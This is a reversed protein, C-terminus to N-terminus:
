TAPEEDHGGGTRGCLYGGSATLWLVVPYAIWREIGGIGLPALPSADGLFSSGLVVLTAIGLGASLYRFPAQTVRAATIAAIGGSVFTVMSVIAHPEGTYGPFLAVGLAGVGLMAMPVTVSLRGYARYVFWSGAMVLTGVLAMSIDFITASPELVVSNPPRTGGLDSIENAGTSFTGPYLAEATIIGMLITAGALFLLGGGLRLDTELARARRSVAVGAIHATNTTM